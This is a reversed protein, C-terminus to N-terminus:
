GKLGLHSVLSTLTSEIVMISLLHITGPKDLPRTDQPSEHLSMTLLSLLHYKALLMDQTTGNM